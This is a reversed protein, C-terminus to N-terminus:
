PSKSSLHQGQRQSQYATKLQDPTTADAISKDTRLGVFRPFRLSLGRDPAVMGFASRHTPSLSVDAARIEFVQNPEFWFTCEEPTVVNPHKKARVGILPDSSGIESGLMGETFEKYFADSFGSMVRCVCDLQGTEHDRTAVLIPSIWKRKRGSGRWGGVPVLDFSDGSSDLYDKKLKLWANTRTPVIEYISEPGKLVLGECGAEVSESLACELGDASVMRGHAFKVMKSERFNEVLVKRRDVFPEKTLDRDGLRLVDFLYLRVDGGVTSLTQFAGIRGDDDVAVIEGDVVFTTTSCSAELAEVVKPYKLTMDDLKRSFLRFTDRSIRHAGVRQGDYKFEAWLEDNKKQAKMWADRFSNSASALMPRPPVGPEVSPAGNAGEELMRCIDGLIPRTAFAQRISAASMKCEEFASAVAPLVTAELSIGTSMHAFCTRVLWKLENGRAKRFLTVLGRRKKEDSGEGSVSGLELLRNRVGVCTLVSADDQVDDDVRAAASSKGRSPAFWNKRGVALAVAADGWDGDHRNATARLTAASAGISDLLAKEIVRYSLNLPRHLHDPQLRHGGGQSDRVPAMLYCTAEIEEVGCGRLRGFAKSLARDKALRSRTSSVSDLADSVVVYLAAGKATKGSPEKMLKKPSFSPSSMPVLFAEISGVKKEVSAGPSITKTRKPLPEGCAECITRWSASPILTCRVCANM